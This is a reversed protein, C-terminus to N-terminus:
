HTVMIKMVDRQAKQQISIAYIGAPMANLNITAATGDTADVTYRATQQGTNNFVLVQYRGPQQTILRYENKGGTPLLSLTVQRGNRLMAQSSYVIGGNKEVV